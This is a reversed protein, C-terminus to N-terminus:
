LDKINENNSFTIEDTVTTIANQGCQFVTKLILM